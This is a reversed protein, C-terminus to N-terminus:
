VTATDICTFCRRQKHLFPEDGPPRQAHQELDYEQVKVVCLTGFQLGPETLRTLGLKAGFKLLYLAM